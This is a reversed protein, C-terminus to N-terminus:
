KNELDLIIANHRSRLSATGGQDLSVGSVVRRLAPIIMVDTGWFGGHGYVQYDGFSRAFLGLRYPSEAPHGPATMMEQLTENSAFVQGSFLAYYYRAVDEVSAVIGGGGFADVSGNVHYTDMGDLYQHARYPSKPVFDSQGEWRVSDLRLGDIRNLELVAEGLPKDTIREIAEGLLIYGTDSYHYEAGPESLKETEDILVRIQETRTWGHSPNSFAAVQFADTGAHDNMGSAHMLLHRITIAQTDYGDSQLLVKHESSIFDSIPDDIDLRGEESLRLIAAAVFTKTISAIRVPTDTTMARGNPDAVGIASSMLEGRDIVAIAFGPVNPSSEKLTKLEIQLQHESVAHTEQHTTCAAVFVGLIWVTFILTNKM